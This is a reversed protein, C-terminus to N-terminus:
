MLILSAVSLFSIRSSSDRLRTVSPTREGSYAGSGFWTSELHITVYLFSKRFSNSSLIMLARSAAIRGCSSASICGANPITFSRVPRKMLTSWFFNRGIRPLYMFGSPDSFGPPGSYARNLVAPDRGPRLAPMARHVECDDEPPPTQPDNIDDLDAGSEPPFKAWRSQAGPSVSGRDPMIRGTPSLAAAIPYLTDGKGPGVSVRVERAGWCPGTSPGIVIRGVIIGADGLAGAIAPGDARFLTAALEGGAERTISIGLGDIAPQPWWGEAIVCHIRNKM